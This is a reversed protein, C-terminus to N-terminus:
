ALGPHDFLAVSFAAILAFAPTAPRAAGMMTTRWSATFTSWAAGVGPWAQFSGVQPVRGSLLSRSGFLILVGLLAAILAPFRRMRHAAEDMRVRTRTSVEALREGAHVREIMFRRVRASGRIMLDRVDGDDIRRIRQAGARARRLEGLHAFPSVWGAVVARALAVRGTLLLAIAEFLDLFFAVPLVWVLALGTYSKCLLRVRSRTEGRLKDAAHDRRHDEESGSA